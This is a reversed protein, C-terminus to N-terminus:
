ESTCKTYDTEDDAAVAMNGLCEELREAKIGLKNRSHEKEYKKLLKM